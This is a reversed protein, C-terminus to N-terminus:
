SDHTRGLESIKFVMSVTRPCRRRGLESYVQYTFGPSERTGHFAPVAFVEPDESPRPSPDKKTGLWGADSAKSQALAALRKDLSVRLLTACSLESHGDHRLV